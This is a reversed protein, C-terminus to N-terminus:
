SHDSRLLIPVVGVISSLRAREQTAASVRCVKRPRRSDHAHNIKAVPASASVEAPSLHRAHRKIRSLVFRGRRRPKAGSCGVTRRRL